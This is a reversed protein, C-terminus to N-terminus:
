NIEYLRRQRISLTASVVALDRCLGGGRSSAFVCRFHTSHESQALRASAEDAQAVTLTDLVDGLHRRLAKILRARERQLLKASGFPAPLYRQIRARQAHLHVFRCEIIKLNRVQLLPEPPRATRRTIHRRSLLHSSPKPSVLLRDT